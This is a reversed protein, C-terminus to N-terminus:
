PADGGCDPCCDRCVAVLEGDLTQLHSEEVIRACEPCLLQKEGFWMDAIEDLSM